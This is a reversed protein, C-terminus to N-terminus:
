KKRQSTLGVYAVAGIIILGQVADTYPKPLGLLNLLNVIAQLTFAGFIANPVSGKGGSLLVGGVVGAAIAQMELGEGITVNVGGYGGIMVGGIIALISCIIFTIVRVLRVRVGSLQSARVNDGIALIQKGFNTRNFIIYSFVAIVILIILANPVRGFLPINEIYNRGFARWNDTLYGQPAGGVYYLAGGRVLLMMGLTAIFSPVKLYSVVLGNGLGILSGIGLMTLIAPYANAPDNALLKSSVLVVLTVIAGVSLDFGGSALVLMEGIAIVALPSATRLFTMIGNMSQYKTPNLIGLTIFIIFFVPYVPPIKKIWTWM